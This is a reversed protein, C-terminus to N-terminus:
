PVILPMWVTTADANREAPTPQRVGVLRPRGKQAKARPPPSAFLRADLRLRTVVTAIPRLADLLELTAYTRDGVLVLTREPCWRHIQRMVHRAWVPVPTHRKGHEQAYRESPALVTLPPVGLVAAGLCSGGLSDARAADRRDVAAGNRQRAHSHSSRVPDRSTGAAAIKSGRRREITEDIGLM